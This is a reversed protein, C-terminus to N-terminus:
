RALRRFRSRVIRALALTLILGGGAHLLLNLVYFISPSDFSYLYAANVLLLSVFYTISRKM